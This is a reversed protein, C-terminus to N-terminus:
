SPHPPIRLIPLITKSSTEATRATGSAINQVLQGQGEAQFSVQFPNFQRRKPFESKVERYFLGPITLDWPQSPVFQFECLAEIIPPDKYIRRVRGERLSSRTQMM